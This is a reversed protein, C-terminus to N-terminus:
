RGAGVKKLMKKIEGAWRLYGRENFQYTGELFYGADPKGKRSLFKKGSDLYFLNERGACYKKILKNVELIHRREEREKGPEMVALWVVPLDPFRMRIRNVVYKYMELEPLGVGGSDEGRAMVHDVHLFVARPDFPSIIRDVYYALDPLSCDTLGRNVIRTNELDDAMTEWRRIQSGGLFLITGSVYRSLRNQEDYAEMEQEQRLVAGEGAGEGALFIRSSDVGFREFQKKFFRLVQLKNEEAKQMLGERTGTETEPRCQICAAVYGRRAFRECVKLGFDATNIGEPMGSGAFFLILPRYKMTDPGSPSFVDLFLTSDASYPVARVTDTKSFVEERFRVQAFLSDGFVLLSLLITIQKKM